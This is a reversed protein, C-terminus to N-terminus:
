LWAGRILFATAVILIVSLGIVWARNQLSGQDTVEFETPSYAADITYQPLLAYGLIIGGILGGLHALNNISIILMGIVLNAFVVQVMSSFRERGFDGLKDRYFYYFALNMGAIGFIAGSAGVSFENPGRIAFSLLGGALGSLFYIITFRSHGYVTEMERGLSYLAIANFAIHPPNAHLFMSTLLRWFELNEIMRVGNTSGLFLYQENFYTVVFILLISALIVYTVIPQSVRYRFPNVLAGPPPTVPIPTPQPKVPSNEQNESRDTQNMM